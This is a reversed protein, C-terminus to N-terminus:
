ARHSVTRVSQFRQVSQAVTLNEILQPAGFLLYAEMLIGTYMKVLGELMLM